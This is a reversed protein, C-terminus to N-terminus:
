SKKKQQEAELQANYQKFRQLGQQWNFKIGEKSNKAFDLGQLALNSCELQLKIANLESEGLQGAMVKLWTDRAWKEAKEMDQSYKYAIPNLHELSVKNMDIPQKEKMLREIDEITYNKM